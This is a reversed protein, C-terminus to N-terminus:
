PYVEARDIAVGYGTSDERKDHLVRIRLTHTGATLWPSLYHLTEGVGAARYQDHFTEPGGDISAAFKGRGPGGFALLTIRRGAFTYTATADKTGSWTDDGWFCLPACDPRVNWAGGYTLSGAGNSRGDDNIWYSGGEPDPHPLQQTAGIPRPAGFHPSGDANWSFRQVRTTRLSLSELGAAATGNAYYVIWDDGDPSRFFGNHGPGWVGAGPNSAFVPGPHQQWNDKDLPDTKGAISKMFLRYEPDKVHCVSYVMWTRGNRHLFSPAERVRPCTEGGHAPIHVPEGATQTFSTLRQLHLANHQGPVSASFALYRQGNHVMIAPDIAWRDPGIRGKFTYGSMPDSGHSEAVFLRHSEDNDDSAAATYYLYWKGTAPDRYFEPAWVLRRHQGEPITLVTVPPAVHLRGISTAKRMTIKNAHTTMALYYHGNHYTMFPGGDEGVPNRFTTEPEADAWLRSSSTFVPASVSVVVVTAVALVGRISIGRRFM